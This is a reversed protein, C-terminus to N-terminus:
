NHIDFPFGSQFVKEDYLTNWASVKGVICVPSDNVQIGWDMGYNADGLYINDNPKVVWSNFVSGPADPHYLKVTLPNPTGNNFVIKGVQGTWNPTGPRYAAPNYQTSCVSPTPPADWKGEGWSTFVPNSILNEGLFYEVRGSKFLKIFYHNNPSITQKVLINESTISQIQFNSVQGKSTTLQVNSGQKPSPDVVFKGQGGFRIDDYVLTSYQWTASPQDRESYGQDVFSFLQQEEKLNKCIRREKEITKIIDPDAIQLALLKKFSKNQSLNHNNCFKASVVDELSGILANAGIIEKGPLTNNTISEEVDVMSEPLTILFYPQHTNPTTIRESIFKEERHYTLVGVKISLESLNVKLNPVKPTERRLVYAALTNSIFLPDTYQKRSEVIPLLQSGYKQKMIEPAKLAAREANQNFTKVNEEALENFYKVLPEPNEVVISEAAAKSAKIYEAHDMEKGYIVIGKAELEAQLKSRNTVHGFNRAILNNFFTKDTFSVATKYLALFYEQSEDALKEFAAAKESIIKQVNPDSVDCGGEVFCNELEQRVINQVKPSSLDCGGKFLCYRVEFAAKEPDLLDKGPRKKDLERGLQRLTNGVEQPSIKKLWPSLALTKEQKVFLLSSLLLSASLFYTISKKSM